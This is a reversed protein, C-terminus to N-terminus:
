KKDGTKNKEMLEKTVLFDVVDLMRSLGITRSANIRYKGNVILTPVTSIQLRRQLSDAQRLRNTVAASKFVRSFEDASTGKGDVWDAIAELTILNTKAKHLQAFFAYHNQESIELEKFSFFTRAFIEWLPNSYLPSRIFTTQAENAKAWDKIDPDLNYCHVCAYSFFEMVEIKEGRLRRPNELLYYHEGELFEGTPKDAMVIYLMWVVAALILSLGVILAM